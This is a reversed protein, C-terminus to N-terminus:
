GNRLLVELSVHELGADRAPGVFETLLARGIGRRRAEARVYIDTIHATRRGRDGLVCFVFGLARGDEEAVLAVGDRVTASLDEWADEWTERLYPEQDLEAEFEEWLERMLDQDTETAARITVPLATRRPPLPR